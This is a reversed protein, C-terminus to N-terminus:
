WRGRREEMGGEDDDGDPVLAVPRPLGDDDEAVGKDADLADADGGDGNGVGNIRVLSKGALDHNSRGDDLVSKPYTPM